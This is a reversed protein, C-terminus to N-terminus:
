LNLIKTEERLYSILIKNKSGFQWIYYEIPSFPRLIDNPNVREFPTKDNKISIYKSLSLSFPICCLRLLKIAELNYCSGTMQGYICCNSLDPNLNKFDLKLRQKKTAFKIINDAEQKVLEKLNDTIIEM